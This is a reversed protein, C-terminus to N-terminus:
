EHLNPLRGMYAANSNTKTLTKKAEGTSKQPGLVREFCIYTTININENIDRLRAHVLFAAACRIANPIIQAGGYQTAIIHYIYIHYIQM